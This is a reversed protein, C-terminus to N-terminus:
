PILRMEPAIVHYDGEIFRYQGVYGLQSIQNDAPEQICVRERGALEPVGQLKIILTPQNNFQCGVEVIHKEISVTSPLSAYRDINLMTAIDDKEGDFDWMDPFVSREYTEILDTLRTLEAMRAAKMGGDMNYPSDWLDVARDLVLDYQEESEIETMLDIQNIRSSM